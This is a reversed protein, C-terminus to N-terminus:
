SQLAWLWALIPILCALFFRTPDHIVKSPRATKFRIHLRGIAWGAVFGCAHALVDTRTDGVGCLGLVIVGTALPLWRRRIRGISQFLGPMASLAGLAGFVATSAGLSIIQSPHRLVITLLNGLTGAGLTILLASGSGIWQGLAFTIAMGALLNSALHGADAHLTLATIIRWGEADSFFRDTLLGGRAVLDVRVNWALISIGAILGWFAVLPGLRSVSAAPQIAPTETQAFSDQELIKPIEDLEQTEVLLAYSNGDPVVWYALGAALLYLGLDHAQDPTRCVRVLHLRNEEPDPEILDEPM